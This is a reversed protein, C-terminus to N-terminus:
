PQLHLTSPNTASKYGMCDEPRVSSSAEIENPSTPVYPPAHSKQSSLQTQRAFMPVEAGGHGLSWPLLQGAGSGTLSCVCAFEALM